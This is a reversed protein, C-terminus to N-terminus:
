LSAVAAALLVLSEHLAAALHILSELAIINKVPSQLLLLLLLLMLPIGLFLMLLLLMMLLLKIRFMEKDRGTDRKGEKGYITGGMQKM